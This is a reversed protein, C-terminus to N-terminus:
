DGDEEFEHRPRATDNPDWMKYKLYDFHGYPEVYVISAADSMRGVIPIDSLFKTYPGGFHLKIKLDTHKTAFDIWGNVHASLSASEVYTDEFYAVGRDLKVKGKMIKFKQGRLDEPVDMKLFTLIGGILNFGEFYGDKVVADMEGGLTRPIFEGEVFMGTVHGTGSFTGHLFTTTDFVQDTFETIDIEQLEGDFRFKYDVPHNFDVWSRGSEIYKGQCSNFTLEPFTLLRKNTVSWKGVGNTLKMKGYVAKKVNATGRWITRMKMMTDGREYRRKRSRFLRSFDIYDSQTYIEFIPSKAEILKGYGDIGFEGVQLHTLPMQLEGDNLTITTRMDQIPVIVRGPDFDLGQLEIEGKYHVKAARSLDPGWVSVNILGGGSGEMDPMTKSRAVPPWMAARKVAPFSAKASLHANFKFPKLKIKGSLNYISIDSWGGKIDQLTVEENGKASVVGKLKFLPGPRQGKMQPFPLRIEFNAPNDKTTGNFVLNINEMDVPALLLKKGKGKKGRGYDKIHLELDEIKILSMKLLGEIDKEATPASKELTDKIAWKIFSEDPNYTSKKKPEGALTKAWKAVSIEGSRYRTLSLNPHVLIIENTVVKKNKILKPGDIVVKIAECSFLDGTNGNEDKLKLELDRIQFGIGPWFLPAIYGARFEAKLNQDVWQELIDSGPKNPLYAPLSIAAFIGGFMVVLAVIFVTILFNKRSM